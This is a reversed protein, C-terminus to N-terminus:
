APGRAIQSRRRWQLLPGEGGDGGDFRRQADLVDAPIRERPVGLTLILLDLGADDHPGSPDDVDSM